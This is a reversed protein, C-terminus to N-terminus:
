PIVKKVGSAAAKGAKKAGSAAKDGVDEAKDAAERGVAKAGKVAQGGVDEAKDGVERGVDAAKGGVDEAKDGVESGVAKAGGVVKSGAAALTDATADLARQIDGETTLERVEGSRLYVRATKRGGQTRVEVREVSSNPDKFRRRTITADGVQETTIESDGTAPAAPQVPQAAAQATNSANSAGGVATNNDGGGCAAAFTSLSLAALLAGTRSKM